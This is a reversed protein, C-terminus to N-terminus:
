KLEIPRWHTFYESVYKVDFIVSVKFALIKYENKAIIDIGIEPLEEEVPIWRQTFKIGEEFGDTFYPNVGSDPLLKNWAEKASQEITKM